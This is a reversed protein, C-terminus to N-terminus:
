AAPSCCGTRPPRVSSYGLPALAGAIATAHRDNWVEELVVIQPSTEQLFRALERPAVAARADVMPVYDSGLVKLLGLNYTLVRYGAAQAVPAM